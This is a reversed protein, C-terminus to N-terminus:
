SSDSAGVISLFSQTSFSLPIRRKNPIFFYIVPNVLCNVMGLVNLWDMHEYSVSYGVVSPFKLILFLAVILGSKKITRRHNYTINRGSEYFKYQKQRIFAKISVFSYTFIFVFCSLITIVMVFTRYVSQLPFNIFVNIVALILLMLASLIWTWVCLTITKNPTQNIHHWLPAKISVSRDITMYILHLINNIEMALLVIQIMYTQRHVEAVTSLIPKLTLYVLDALCLCILFIDNNSWHTRRKYLLVLELGNLASGLTALFWQMALLAMMKDPVGEPITEETDVVIDDASINM